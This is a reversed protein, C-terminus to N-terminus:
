KVGVVSMLFRLKANVEVLDCTDNFSAPPEIGTFHYLAKLEEICKEQRAGKYGVVTRLANMQEWIKEESYLTENSATDIANETSIRIDDSEQAKTSVPLESSDSIEQYVMYSSSPQTEEFTNVYSPSGQQSVTILDELQDLGRQENIEGEDENSFIVDKKEENLLFNQEVNNENDDEAQGGEMLMASELEKRSRGDNVKESVPGASLERGPINDESFGKADKGLNTEKSFADLNEVSEKMKVKNDAKNEVTAEFESTPKKMGDHALICRTKAKEVDGVIKKDDKEAGVHEKEASRKDDVAYDTKGEDRIRELLGRTERVLEEERDIDASQSLQFDVKKIQFPTKKEIESGNKEDRDFEVVINCVEEIPKDSTSGDSVSQEEKVETTGVINVEIEKPQKGAVNAREERRKDDVECDTKSEDTIRESLDRAGISPKENEEIDIAQVLQVPENKVEPPTEETSNEKKKSGELSGLVVSIEDVPHEGSSEEILPQEQQRETTGENGKLLKVKADVQAKEVVQKDEVADRSRGEERNRELSGWLERVLEDNEVHVAANKLEATTQKNVNDTEKKDGEITTLFGHIEAGPQENVSEKISQEGKLKRTGGIKLRTKKKRKPQADVNKVSQRTMRVLEEKAKVNEAKLQTEREINSSQKGDGEVFAEVGNGGDERQESRIKEIIPQETIEKVEVEFSQSPREEKEEVIEDVEEMSTKDDNEVGGKQYAGEQLINRKNLEEETDVLEIRMEVEEITDMKLEKEEREINFGGKIVDNQGGQNEDGNAEEEGNLAKRYELLPAAPSPMPLLRRMVTETCAYSVLFVGYPISCVFGIASIAMLPPLVLPVSSIVIGTVLIKRGLRLMWSLKGNDSNGESSEQIEWESKPDDMWIDMQMCFIPKRMEVHNSLMPVHCGQKKPRQM